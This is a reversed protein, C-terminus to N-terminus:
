KMNRWELGHQDLVEGLKSDIGEFNFLVESDNELAELCADVLETRIMESPLEFTEQLRYPVEQRLFATLPDQQREAGPMNELLYAVGKSHSKDFWHWIEM